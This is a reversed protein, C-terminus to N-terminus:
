LSLRVQEFGFLCEAEKVEDTIQEMLKYRENTEHPTSEPNMVMCLVLVSDGGRIPDAVVRM